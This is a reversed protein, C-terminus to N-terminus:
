IKNYWKWEEGLNEYLFIMQLKMKWVIRYTNIQDLYIWWMFFRWKNNKNSFQNLWTGFKELRGLTWLITMLNPTSMKDFINLHLFNYEIVVIKPSKQTNESMYSHEDKMVQSSNM